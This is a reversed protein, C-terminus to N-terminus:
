YNFYWYMDGDTFMYDYGSRDSRQVRYRNGGKFAFLGDDTEEITAYSTTKVRASSGISKFGTVKVKTGQSYTSAASVSTVTSYPLPACFACMLLGIFFLKKM